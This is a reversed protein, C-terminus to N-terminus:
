IVTTVLRPEQAAAGLENLQSIKREGNAVFFQSHTVAFGQRAVQKQNFTISLM